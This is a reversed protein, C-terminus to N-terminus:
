AMSNFIDLLVGGFFLIAPILTYWETTVRLILPKPEETFLCLNTPQILFCYEDKKRGFFCVNHGISSMVKPNELGM